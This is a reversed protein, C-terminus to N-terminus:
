AAIRESQAPADPDSLEYNAVTKGNANMVWVLGSGILGDWDNPYGTVILAPGKGTMPCVPFYRVHDVSYVNEVGDTDRHKITFM